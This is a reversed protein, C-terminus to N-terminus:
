LRAPRTMSKSSARTTAIATLYGAAAAGYLGLRPERVVRLPVRALFEDMPPKSRFAELFGADQLAPLIRPAIGGGVYVGGTARFQLALNGAESGYISAFQRVAEACLRDEGSLGFRTIVAARDEKEFAARVRPDSPAFGDAELFDYIHRLGEGSLLRDRTARGFSARLFRVLGDEQGTRPGFDVHGGESAVPVAGSRLRLMAAQGLGTGAGILAVPGTKEERGRQIVVLQKPSLYPLGMAAAVFDNVVAVRRAHIRRSIRRADVTWPLKTIRARGDRVPGAVGFGAVGPPNTERALFDGLIDELSAHDASPYTQERLLTLSRPGIRAIAVATKTGGIDGALVRM